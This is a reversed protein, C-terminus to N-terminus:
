TCYTRGGEIDEQFHNMTATTNTGNNKLNQSFSLIQPSGSQLPSFPDLGPQSDGGPYKKRYYNSLDKPSTKKNFDLGEVQPRQEVDGDKSGPEQKQIAAQVRVVTVYTLWIAAVSLVVKDIM